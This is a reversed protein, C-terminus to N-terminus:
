KEYVTIEPFTIGLGQYPDSTGNVDHTWHDASGAVQSYLTSPDDSFYETVFFYATGGSPITLAGAPNWSDTVGQPLAPGTRSFRDTALDGSTAELFAKADNDLNTGDSYGTYVDIAESLCIYSSLSDSYAIPSAPSSFSSLSVDFSVGGGKHTIEFCFTSAYLPAFYLSDLPEETPVNEASLFNQNYSFSSDLKTIDQRKYGHYYTVGGEMQTNYSLYKVSISFDGIVQINQVSVSVKRSNTFWALSVYTCTGLTFLVLFYICTL